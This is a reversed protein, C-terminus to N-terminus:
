PPLDHVVNYESLKDLLKQYGDGSGCGYRLNNGGLLLVELKTFDLQRLRNPVCGTLQNNKLNLYRLNRLLRARVPIRGSFNNDNLAMIELTNSSDDPNLKFLDPLSGTFTNNQLDLVKLTDKGM